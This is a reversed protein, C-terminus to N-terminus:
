LKEVKLAAPKIFAHLHSGISSAKMLRSHQHANIGHYHYTDGNKYAVGLTNTHPDHGVSSVNSSRSGLPTMKM